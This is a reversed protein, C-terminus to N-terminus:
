NVDFLIDVLKELEKKNTIEKGDFCGHVKDNILMKTVAGLSARAALVVRVIEELSRKEQYMKEISRVQGEVRHLRALIKQPDCKQEM